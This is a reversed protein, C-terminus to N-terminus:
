PVQQETHTEKNHIKYTYTYKQQKSIQTKRQLTKEKLVKISNTPDKSRHFQRVSLRYQTPCTLCQETLWEILWDPSHPIDPVAFSPLPSTRPSNDSPFPGLPIVLLFHGDGLDVVRRLGALLGCFAYRSRRDCQKPKLDVPTFIGTKRNVKSTMTAVTIYRLTFYDTLEIWIRQVTV